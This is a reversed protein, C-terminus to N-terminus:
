LITNLFSSLLNAWKVSKLYDDLEKEMQTKEKHYKKQIQYCKEAYFEKQDKLTPCLMLIKYSYELYFSDSGLNQTIDNITENVIDISSSYQQGIGTTKMYDLSLALILKSKIIQLFDPSKQKYLENLSRESYDYATLFDERVFYYLSCVYYTHGMIKDFGSPLSQKSDIISIIQYPNDTKQLMLEIEAQVNLSSCFDRNCKDLIKSRIKNALVVYEYASDYLQVDRCLLGINFLATAWSAVIDNQTKTDGYLFGTHFEKKRAADLYINSAEFPNFLKLITAYLDLSRAYFPSNEAIKQKIEIDSIIADLAKPFDGSNAYSLALNYYCKSLFLMEDNDNSGKEKVLRIAKELYESGKESENYYYSFAGISNLLRTRIHYDSNECMYEEIKKALTYTPFVDSFSMGNLYQLKQLLANANYDIEEPSLHKIWSNQTDSQTFKHKISWQKKLFENISKDKLCKNAFENLFFKKIKEKKYFTGLDIYTDFAFCLVSYITDSESLSHIKENLINKYEILSPSFVDDLLKPFENATDYFADKVISCIINTTVEDSIEKVINEIEKNFSNEEALYRLLKRVSNYDGEPFYIPEIGLKTLHRNRQVRRNEDEIWPVIAYHSIREGNEVCECLIDLTRDFELSCGVFLLKKATFLKILYEPLPKNKRSFRTGYFKNYQSSTLVFSSTEEISGHLKLLFRTNNQIAADVQGKLCPLLPKLPKTQVSQCAAEELITDYNTTVILNSFSSTLIFPSETLSVETNNFLEVIRNMVMHENEVVEVIKDAYEYCDCTAHLKQIEDVTFYDKAVMDLMDLWSYLGCQISVGAGVFPVIHKRQERINNLKKLNDKYYILESIEM